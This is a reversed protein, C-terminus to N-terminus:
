EDFPHDVFGTNFQQAGVRRPSAAYEDISPISFRGVNRGDFADATGGSFRSSFREWAKIVGTGIVVIGGVDRVFVGVCVVGPGLAEIGM